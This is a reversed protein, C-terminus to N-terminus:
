EVEPSFLPHNIAQKSLTIVQCVATCALFVDSFSICMLNLNISATQKIRKLLVSFSVHRCVFMYLCLCTFCSFISGNWIFSNKLFFISTSTLIGNLILFPVGETQLVCDINRLMILACLRLLSSKLLTHWWSIFFSLSTPGIQFFMTVSVCLDEAKIWVMHKLFGMLSTLINMKTM